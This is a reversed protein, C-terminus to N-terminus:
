ASVKSHNTYEINDYFYRMCICFQDLHLFFMTFVIDIERQPAYHHYINQFPKTIRLSEKEKFMFVAEMETLEEIM